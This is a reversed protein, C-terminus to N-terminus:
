KTGKLANLKKTAARKWRKGQTHSKEPVNDNNEGLFKPDDKMALAANSYAICDQLWKEANEPDADALELAHAAKLYSFLSVDLATKLNEVSRDADLAKEADHMDALQELVEGKVKDGQCGFCGTDFWAGDVRKEYARASGSVLSLALCFVAIMKKM